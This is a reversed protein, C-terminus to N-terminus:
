TQEIYTLEKKQRKKNPLLLPMIIKILIGYKEVIDIVQFFNNFYFFIILFSLFINNFLICLM